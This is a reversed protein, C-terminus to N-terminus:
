IYSKTSQFTNKSYYDIVETKEKEDLRELFLILLGFTDNNIKLLHKM